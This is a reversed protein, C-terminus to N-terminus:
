INEFMYGGTLSFTTGASITRATGTGDCFAMTFAGASNLYGIAFEAGYSFWSTVFPPRWKPKVTGITIDTINGSAPVSINSSSTIIMRFMVFHGFRMAYFDSVLSWDSEFEMFDDINSTFNRKTLNGVQERLEKVEKELQPLTTRADERNFRAM